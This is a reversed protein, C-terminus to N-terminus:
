PAIELQSITLLDFFSEPFPDISSPPIFTISIDGDDDSLSLFTLLDGRLGIKQKFFLAFM